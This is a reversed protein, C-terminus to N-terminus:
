AASSRAASADPSEGTAIPLATALMLLGAAAINRIMTMRRTFDSM